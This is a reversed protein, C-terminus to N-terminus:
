VAKYLRYLQDRISHMEDSACGDITLESGDLRVKTTAGCHLLGAEGFEADIGKGNLSAKLESLKLDGIFVSSGSTHMAKSTTPQLTPLLGDEADEVRGEVYAVHYDNIHQFDIGRLFSEQLRVSFMATGSSVDAVEGPPPEKVSVGEYQLTTRLLMRGDRAGGIIACKSPEMKMIMTRLSRGDAKGDYQLVHVACHVSVGVTQSVVKSPREIYPKVEVDDASQLQLMEEQDDDARDWDEADGEVNGGELLAASASGGTAGAARWMSYLADMDAAIGYATQPGASNNPRLPFMPGENNYDPDFGDILPERRGDAMLDVAEEAAVAIETGMPGSGDDEGSDDHEIDNASSKTTLEGGQRESDERTLLSMDELKRNRKKRKQNDSVAQGGGNLADVSGNSHATASTDSRGTVGDTASNQDGQEVMFSATSEAESELFAIDPDRDEIAGDLHMARSQREQEERQKREYQALEDGELDVRWSVQVSLQQRESMPTKSQEVISSAFTNAAPQRPFLILNTISGAVVSALARAPGSELDEASAVVIKPGSPLDNFQEMSHCSKINAKSFLGKSADINEMLNENMWETHTNAFELATSAVSNFFVLSYQKSVADSGKSDTGHSLVLLLELVRGATDSPILVTGDAKLCRFIAQLMQQDRQDLPPAENARAMSADAIVVSPRLLGDLSAPGLLREKRHNFDPMYVVLEANKSIEWVTGGLQYGSARPTALVDSDHRGLPTRQSYRLPVLSQFASDVDDLTFTSFDCLLRMSQYLDYLSLLGLKHVPLTCYAPCRLGLYSRAYPLGGVHEASPQSLLVASIEPALEALRSLQESGRASDWGCDLLVKMGGLQLVSCRARSGQEALVTLEVETREARRGTSEGREELSAEM